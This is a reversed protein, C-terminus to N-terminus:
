RTCTSTYWPSQQTQFTYILEPASRVTGLISFIALFLNWLILPRRLSFAEVNKMGMQISFIALIYVLSFYISLTWNAHFWIKWETLLFSGEFPLVSMYEPVPTPEGSSNLVNM